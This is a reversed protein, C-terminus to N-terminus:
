LRALMVLSLTAAMALVSSVGADAVEDDSPQGHHRM